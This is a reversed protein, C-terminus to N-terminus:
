GLRSKIPSLAPQAQVLDAVAGSVVAAAMSTGSLTMYYTSKVSASGKSNYYNTAVINSPLALALTATPSALVSVIQNGPAVLDPKAINDILSPSQLQLQGISRRFPRSNRGDEDGGNDFRLSRQRAFPDNRLGCQWLFEVTRRQGGCGLYIGAKWAAEVAQCLPDNKYSEFVPRGISLNIVRINYTKKLSIAYDIAQIVISDSSLGNKDLVRFNLLNVGPAMGSLDRTCTSCHSNAGNGGIIGALTLVM